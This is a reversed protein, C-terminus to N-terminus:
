EEHSAFHDMMAPAEFAALSARRLVPPARSALAFQGCAPVAEFLTPESTLRQQAQPLARAGRVTSENQTADGNGEERLM